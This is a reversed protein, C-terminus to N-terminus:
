SLSVLGHWTPSDLVPPDYHLPTVSHPESSFPIALWKLIRGKDKRKVRRILCEVTITFPTGLKLRKTWTFNLTWWSMKWKLELIKGTRAVWVM